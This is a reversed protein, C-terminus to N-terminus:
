PPTTQQKLFNEAVYLIQLGQHLVAIAADKDPDKTEIISQLAELAEEETFYEGAEQDTFINIQLDPNEELIAQTRDYTDQCRAKAFLASMNVEPYEDSLCRELRELEFEQHPLFLSEM